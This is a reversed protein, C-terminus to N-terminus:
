TVETGEADWGAVRRILAEGVGRGAVSRVELEVGRYRVRDGAVPPRDLVMLVLGSVTDVEEHDLELGLADGAEDLRTTGQVLAEGPGVSSVAAIDQPQEDLDGVVEEFLDEITILGATGGHEDLVIALQTRQERMARLVVDLTSTQPVFPVPRVMAADLARSEQLMVLVDKTHVMGLIHDLDGDFVPYRTHNARALVERMEAPTAGLPMGVVNVRAVMAERARLAGFEFLEDLLRAADSRIQGQEESERVVFQLEEPTYYQEAGLERRIGFLRLVVNGIGNLGLVLPYMLRKMWLMLPTVALATGEARSLALAKPIMEGVVIHFYTLIVIAVISAIAHSALWSARGEGELGDYIWAALTHEGYMGLGLSAFTIGLQATAIYRDQNQASGLIGKVVRASLNGTAARRDIATRSVGAIAFEAAVFLGNLLILVTIVVITVAESPM